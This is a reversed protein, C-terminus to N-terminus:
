RQIFRLRPKLNVPEVGSLDRHAWQTAAFYHRFTDQFDADDFFGFLNKSDCASFPVAFVFLYCGLRFEGVIHPLRDHPQKRVYVSIQAAPNPPLNITSTAILPLPRETNTGYRVWEISEKLDPLHEEDVVAIAVKVLARYAAVPILRTGSGLTVELAGDDAEVVDHAQIIVKKGDNMLTDRGFSLKPRGDNSGRGQTGLFVRQLDLMAILSPETEKGFYENCDDCEEASKLHDNGLATPIVHAAKKFQAENATRRCFRCTRLRKGAGVVTKRDTRPLHLDYRELLRSFLDDEPREATTQPTPDNLADLHRELVLRDKTSSPEGPLILFYDGDTLRGIQQKLRNLQPLTAGFKAILGDVAVRLDPTVLQEVEFKAHDGNVKGFIAVIERMDDAHAATYRFVMSFSDDPMMVYMGIM